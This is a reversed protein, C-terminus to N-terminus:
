EPKLELVAVRSFLESVEKSYAFELARNHRSETALRIADFDKCRIIKISSPIVHALAGACVGALGGIWAPTGSSDAVQAGIVAGATTSAGLAAITRAVSIPEKDEAIADPHRMAMDAIRSAHYALSFNVANSLTDPQDDWKKANICQVVVDTNDQQVGFVIEHKNDNYFSSAGAPGPTNSFRINLSDAVAAPAGAMELGERYLAHDFSFRAINPQQEPDISVTPFESSIKIDVGPM